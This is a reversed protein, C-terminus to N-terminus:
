GCEMLWYPGSESIEKFGLRRYLHQAPNFKEVHISVINGSHRAEEIIHQLLITGIGKGRWEPLLSIDVIRLERDGWFLYLRGFPSGDLELIGFDADAYYTNYHRVQLAFQDRLFGVKSDQPWDVGALEEWRVSIYLRELFPMDEPRERRLSIGQRTLEGPLSFTKESTASKDM